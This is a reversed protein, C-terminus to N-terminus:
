PLKEWLDDDLCHLGITMDVALHRGRNYWGFEGVLETSQERARISEMDEDDVDIEKAENYLLFRDPQSHHERAKGHVM